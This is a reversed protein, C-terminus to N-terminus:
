CTLVRLKWLMAKLKLGFMCKQFIQNSVSLIEHM